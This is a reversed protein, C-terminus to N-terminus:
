TSAPVPEGQCRSDDRPDFPFTVDSPKLEEGPTKNLSSAGPTSCLSPLAPAQGSSDSRLSEESLDEVPELTGVYSNNLNIPKFLLVWQGGAFILGAPLQGGEDGQVELAEPELNADPTHGTAEM